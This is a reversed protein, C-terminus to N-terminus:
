RRYAVTIIEGDGSLVLYLKRLKGEHRKLYQRLESQLARLEPASIPRGLLKAVAYLDDHQKRTLQEFPTRFLASMKQLGLKNLCVSQGERCHQVDGFVWVLALAWYDIGRQRMREQAHKTLQLM